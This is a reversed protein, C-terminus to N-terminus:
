DGFSVRRKVLEVLGLYATVLAVLLPWFVPPLSRFGLAWGLPSLPLLVAVAKPIIWSLDDFRHGAYNLLWLGLGFAVTAFVLRSRDFRWGLLLAAVVAVLAYIGGVAHLWFAPTRHDAAYAIAAFLLGGPLLFSIVGRVFPSRM